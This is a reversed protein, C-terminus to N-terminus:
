ELSGKSLTSRLATYGIDGRTVRLCKTSFHFAMINRFYIFLDPARVSMGLPHNQLCQARTGIPVNGPILKHHCKVSKVDM